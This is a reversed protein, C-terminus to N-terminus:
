SQSLLFLRPDLGEYASHQFFTDAQPIQQVFRRRRGQGKLAKGDFGDAICFRKGLFQSYGPPSLSM